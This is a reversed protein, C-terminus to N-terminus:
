PAAKKLRSKKFQGNRFTGVGMVQGTSDIQEIMGPHKASAQYRLQSKKQIYAKAEEQATLTQHSMALAVLDVSQHSQTKPTATELLRVEPVALGSILYAIQEVSLKSEVIRGLEAWHSIQEPLKRHFTEAAAQAQSLLIPNLRVPSDQTPM